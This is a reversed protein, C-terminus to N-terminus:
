CRGTCRRRFVNGYRLRMNRPLQLQRQGRGDPTERAEKCHGWPHPRKSSCQLWQLRFDGRALHHRPVHPLDLPSIPLASCSPLDAPLHPCPLCSPPRLPRCLFISCLNHAAMKFPLRYLAFRSPAICIPTSRLQSDTDIPILMPLSLLSRTSLTLWSRTSFARQDLRYSNGM